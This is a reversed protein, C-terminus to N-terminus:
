QKTVERKETVGKIEPVKAVAEVTEHEDVFIAPHAKKLAAAQDATVNVVAGKQCKVADLGVAKADNSGLSVRFTVKM